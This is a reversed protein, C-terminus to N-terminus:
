DCRTAIFSGDKQAIVVWDYPFVLIAEKNHLWSYAQVQLCPDDPYTLLARGPAGFSFNELKFGKAPQVGYAYARHLQDRASALNEQVFFFPIYGLTTRPRAPGRLWIM